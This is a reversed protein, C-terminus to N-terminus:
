LRLQEKAFALAVWGSGRAKFYTAENALFLRKEKEMRTSRFRALLHMYGLFLCCGLSYLIRPPVQSSGM